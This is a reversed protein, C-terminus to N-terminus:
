SLRHWSTGTANSRLAFPTNWGTGPWTRPRRCGAPACRPTCNVSRTLRSPSRRRAPITEAKALHTVLIIGFPHRRNFHHHPAFGRRDAASVRSFVAWSSFRRLVFPPVPSRETCQLTLSNSATSTASSVGSLYQIPANPSVPTERTQPITNPSSPNFIPPPPFTCSIVFQAQVHEIAVCAVFVVAFGAVSLKALMM